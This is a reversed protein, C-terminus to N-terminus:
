CCGFILIKWLIRNETVPIGKSASTQGDRLTRWISQINLLDWWEYCDYLGPGSRSTTVHHYNGNKVLSMRWDSCTRTSIYSYNIDPVFTRKPFRRQKRHRAYFKEDVAAMKTAQFPSIWRRKPTIEWKSRITIYDNVTLYSSPTMFSLVASSRCVQLSQHLWLIADKKRPNVAKTSEFQPPYKSSLCKYTPGHPHKQRTAATFFAYSSNAAIIPPM